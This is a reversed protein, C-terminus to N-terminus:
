FKKEARLKEAEEIMTQKGSLFDNIQENSLYPVLIDILSAAAEVNPTYATFHVNNKVYEFYTEILSIAKAIAAPDSTVLIYDHYYIFENMPNLSVAKGLDERCLFENGLKCSAVGRLYYARDDMKNLDIEKDAFNVAKKYEHKAIATDAQELYYNRPYLSYALFDKEFGYAAVLIGGEFVALIAMAGAIGTIVERLSKGGSENEVFLSRLIALLVFFLILNALFNFNYDILSHAVAGLLGVSLIYALAQKEKPILRFRQAVKKILFAAFVILALLALIGNEVGIKLFLNHPHDSIGLFTKQIGQYAWRFSFPGHGLLPKEKVLEVAGEWFDFRETKSTLNEGNDFNVREGLDLVPENMGRIYNAAFFIAVSMVAVLLVKGFNKVSFRKLFYPLFLVIQGGFAIWAGRSYTLLLAGFTLVMIATALANWKKKLLFFLVPWAMLLFLAFANPWVNSHYLLNYFPGFMRPEQRFFYFMYGCFIALLAGVGIVKLLKEQGFVKQSAFILYLGVASVYAMVESLGVNKTESFVFSLGVLVMFVVLAIEEGLNRERKKKFEGLALAFVLIAFIVM